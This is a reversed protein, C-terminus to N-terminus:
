RRGLKVELRGVEVLNGLLDRLVAVMETQRGVFARAPAEISLDVPM